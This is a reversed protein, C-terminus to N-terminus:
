IVGRDHMCRMVLGRRDIAKAAGDGCNGGMEQPFTLHHFPQSLKRPSLKRVFIIGRDTSGSQGMEQDKGNRKEWFATAAM